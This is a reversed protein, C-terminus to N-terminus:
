PKKQQSIHNLFSSISEWQEETFSLIEECPEEPNPDRSTGLLVRKTKQQFSIIIKGASSLILYEENGNPYIRKSHQM